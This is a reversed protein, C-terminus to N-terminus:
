VVDNANRLTVCITAFELQHEVTQSHPGVNCRGLDRRRHQHVLVGRATYRYRWVGTLLRERTPPKTVDGKFSRRRSCSSNRVRLLLRVIAIPRGQDRCKISSPASSVNASWGIGDSYPRAIGREKGAYGQQSYNAEESPVVIEELISESATKVVGM